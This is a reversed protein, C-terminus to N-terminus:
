QWQNLYESNRALIDLKSILRQFDFQDLKSNLVKPHGRLEPIPHCCYEVITSLENALNINTISSKFEKVARYFGDILYDRVASFTGNWNNWNFQEDINKGILSTMNTGTFYFVILSGFLYIDTSKTRVSWDQIRYGYFYEPPAYNLDGPFDGNSDHPAVINECLSRGLDAIKSLNGDNYVLVNSPKLDQHGIKVSHLQKLGVAVNHLSRLKWPIELDQSFRIHSRVDCNAVEFILYPVNTITYGPVFEEGEDLILAVKSLRNEKCRNLLDKEYRYAATQENIIDVIPRGNFLQFFAQFNLAKLFADQYGNNVLYCVSFFGGTGGTSDIRHKVVWGNKLMRGALASAANDHNSETM